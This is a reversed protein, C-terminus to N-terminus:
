NLRIPCNRDSLYSKIQGVSLQGYHLLSALLAAEARGQTLATYIHECNGAGGSAIVPIEVSSAIAGTLEIDYGAQTGDADMSTVLLEGAGRQAVEQAWQLADIGTNERGGRVYVDWGPNNVDQRRRADIAVVICQNGFRDSARNILDPDKVAASNISVKDAGARLLNKIQELSQIGGGVTLPIFVQEATRYVVDFIIDRDEHTATIDLFVLEDAGAENYVKALEVPDGADQLNVFNVGKVVRGAKVDLCPLIRKALM